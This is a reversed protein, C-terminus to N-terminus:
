LSHLTIREYSEKRLNHEPEQHKAYWEKDKTPDPRFNLAVDSNVTQLDRSAANATTQEKQIQVNVRVVSEILPIRFYLGEGLVEGTPAGFRLRIGREGASITGFPFAIVIAIIIFIILGLKTLLAAKRTIDNQTIDKIM